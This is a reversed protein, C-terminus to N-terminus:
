SRAPPSTTLGQEIDRIAGGVTAFERPALTSALARRVIGASTALAPTRRVVADLFAADDDSARVAVTRGARRRLGSVLRSTATRTAAVDAYAYALANAHELPSRRPIREPDRPVIPRPMKALLLVLAAILAQALFHGSGTHALYLSVARLTGGHAGHGHHYEDFAIVPHDVGVPRVLELARASAIDAGWGCTRVAENSLAGAASMAAVRGAGLPFAAGVVLRPSIGTAASIDTVPGPPPRRWRLEHLMPPFSLAARRRLSPRDPCDRDGTGSMAMFPTALIVGISDAIENAGEVDFILGGGHRVNELLRHVEVAGLAQEPALVVQVSPTAGSDLPGQRRVTRWGMRQALEYVMRTGAPAASYSSRGGGAAETSEPTVVAVIVAVGALAALLAAPGIRRQAIVLGTTV